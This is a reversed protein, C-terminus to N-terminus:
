ANTNASPTTPNRAQHFLDRLRDLESEALYSFSVDRELHDLYFIGWWDNWRPPLPCRYLRANLVIDM